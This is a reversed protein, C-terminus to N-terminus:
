HSDRPVMTPLNLKWCRSVTPRHRISPRQFPPLEDSSAAATEPAIVPSTKTKTKPPTDPQQRKDKQLQQFLLQARELISDSQADQSQALRDVKRQLRVLHAEVDGNNKSRKVPTPQVTRFIFSRPPINSANTKSPPKPNPKREDSELVPGLSIRPGRQRRAQSAPQHNRNDIPKSAQQTPMSRTTQPRQVVRTPENQQRRALLFARTSAPNSIALAATLGAGLLMAWFAAHFPKKTIM